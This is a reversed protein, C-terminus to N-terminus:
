LWPQLPLDDALSRAFTMASHTHANKFSPMLLNGNLNIEEDAKKGYYKGIFVIKDGDVWVEDDTIDLSNNKLTLVKGGFFRIM